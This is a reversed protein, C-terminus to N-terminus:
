MILKLSIALFFKCCMFFDFSLKSKKINVLKRVVRECLAKCWNGWQNYVSKLYMGNSLSDTNIIEKASGLVQYGTYNHV